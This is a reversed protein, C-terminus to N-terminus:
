PKNDRRLANQKVIEEMEKQMEEDVSLVQQEPDKEKKRQSIEEPTPKSTLIIFGLQISIAVIYIVVAGLVPFDLKKVAIVVIAVIGAMFTVYFLAFQIAYVIDTVDWKERKM